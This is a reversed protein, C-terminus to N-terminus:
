IHRRCDAWTFIVIATWFQNCIFIRRFMSEFNNRVNQIHWGTLDAPIGYLFMRLACIDKMLPLIGMRIGMKVTCSPELGQIIYNSHTLCTLVKTYLVSWPVRFMRKCVTVPQEASFLNKNPIWLTDPCFYKSKYRIDAAEYNRTINASKEACAGGRRKEHTAMTIQAVHMWFILIIHEDTDDKLFDFFQKSLLLSSM